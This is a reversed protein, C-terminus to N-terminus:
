RSEEFDTIEFVEQNSNLYNLIMEELEKLEPIIYREANALTQKRMYYDPVLNKFSNTVELYYGFVKNYRIKLSKIGTAEKEKAELEAKEALLAAKREEMETIEASLKELEDHEATEVATHIEESREEIQHLEEDIEILRKQM